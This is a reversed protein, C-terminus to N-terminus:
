WHKDQLDSQKVLLLRPQLRFVCFCSDSIDLHEWIWFCKPLANHQATNQYDGMSVKILYKIGTLNDHSQIRDWSYKDRTQFLGRIARWDTAPCRANARLRFCALISVGDYVCGCLFVRVFVCLPYTLMRRMQDYEDTETSLKMRESFSPSGQLLKTTQFM